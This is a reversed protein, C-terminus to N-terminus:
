ENWVIVKNITGDARSRTAADVFFEKFMPPMSADQFLVVAVVSDKDNTVEMSHQFVGSDLNGSVTCSDFNIDYIDGAQAYESCISVSADKDAADSLNFDIDITRATAFNFNRDVQLTDTDVPDPIAAGVVPETGSTENGDTGVTASASEDILPNETTGSGCATLLTCVTLLTITKRM